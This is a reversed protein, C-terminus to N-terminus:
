GDKPEWEVMWGFFPLGHMEQFWAAMDSFSAFGEAKAIRHLADDGVFPRGDIAVGRKGIRFKKVSVCRADILKRCWWTRQGVYLQLADGAECRKTPRITTRKTGDEIADVFRKRFNFAVM